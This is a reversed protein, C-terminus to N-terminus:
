KFSVGNEYKTSFYMIRFKVSFAGNEYKASFYMIKSSLQFYVVRM